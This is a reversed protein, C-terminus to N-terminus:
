EHSSRYEVLDKYALEIRAKAHEVIAEYDKTMRGLACALEEVREMSSDMGAAYGKRYFDVGTFPGEEPNFERSDAANLAQLIIDAADIDDCIAFENGASDIIRPREPAWVDAMYEIKYLKGAETTESM